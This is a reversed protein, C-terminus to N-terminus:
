TILVDVERLAFNEPEEDILELRRLAEWDRLNGAGFSDIRVIPTGMDFFAQPKYLGNRNDFVLESFPVQSQGSEVLLSRVKCSIVV